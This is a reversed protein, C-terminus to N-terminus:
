GTASSQNHVYVQTLIDSAGTGTAKHFIRLNRGLIPVGTYQGAAAVSAGQQAIYRTAVSGVSIVSTPGTSPVAGISDFHAVWPQQLATAPTAGTTGTIVGINGMDIWNAGGDVSTQVYTNLTTIGFVSSTLTVTISDTDQPLLVTAADTVASAISSRFSLVPSSPIRISM